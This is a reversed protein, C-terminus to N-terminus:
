IAAQEVRVPYHLASLTVLPALACSIHKMAHPVLKM